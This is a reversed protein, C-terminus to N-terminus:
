QNEHFTAKEFLDRTPKPRNANANANAILQSVTDVQLLEPSELGNLQFQTKQHTVIQEITGNEMRWTPRTKQNRWFFHRYPTYSSNRKAHAAIGFADSTLAQREHLFDFLKKNAPNSVSKRLKMKSTAMSQPKLNNGNFSTLHERLNRGKPGSMTKFTQLTDVHM